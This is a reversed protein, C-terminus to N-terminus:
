LWDKGPLVQLWGSSEGVWSYCGQLAGPGTADEHPPLSERLVVAEASLIRGHLSM